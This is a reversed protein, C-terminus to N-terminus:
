PPRVLPEVSVFNKLTPLAFNSLRYGPFVGVSVLNGVRCLIGGSRANGSEVM